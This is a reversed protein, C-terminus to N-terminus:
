QGQYLQAGGAGAYPGQRGCEGADAGLDTALCSAAAAVAACADAGPKVSPSSSAGFECRSRTSMTRASRSTRRATRPGAFLCRDYSCCSQCGGFLRSTGVVADRALVAPRREAAADVRGDAEGGARQGAAAEGARPCRFVILSLIFAVTWAAPLWTVRCGDVLWGPPPEGRHEGAEGPGQWPIALCLVIM